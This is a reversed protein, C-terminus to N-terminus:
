RVKIKIYDEYRSKADTRSSALVIFIAPDGTKDTAYRATIIPKELTLKSKLMANLTASRVIVDGDVNKRVVYYGIM